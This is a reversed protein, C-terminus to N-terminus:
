TIGLLGHKRRQKLRSSELYSTRSTVMAVHPHPWAHSSWHSHLVHARGLLVHLVVHAHAIHHYSKNTTIYLIKHLIFDKVDKHLGPQTLIHCIVVEMPQPMSNMYRRLFKSDLFINLITIHM